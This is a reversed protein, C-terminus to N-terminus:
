SNLKIDVLHSVLQNHVKAICNINTILDYGDSDEGIRKGTYIWCGILNDKMKLFNYETIRRALWNDELVWDKEIQVSSLGEHIGGNLYDRSNKQKMDKAPGRSFRVFLTDQSETIIKKLNSITKITKM